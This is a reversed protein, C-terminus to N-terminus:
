GSTTQFAIEVCQGIAVSRHDTFSADRQAATLSLPDTQRPSCVTLSVDIQQVVREARDVRVHRGGYETSEDEIRQEAAGDDQGSMLDLCTMLRVLACEPFHAEYRAGTLSDSLQTCSYVLMCYLCKCYINIIIVIM